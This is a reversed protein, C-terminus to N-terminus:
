SYHLWVKLQILNSLSFFLSLGQTSSSRSNYINPVLLSSALVGMLKLNGVGGQGRGALWETRQLSVQKM